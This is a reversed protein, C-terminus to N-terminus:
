TNFLDINQGPGVTVVAKKWAQKRTYYNRGRRGRKKPMIMTRVSLVDVLFIDEIAYRIQIKNASMAVEFTYQNLDDAAANSKETIVPRVIVDWFNLEKAM